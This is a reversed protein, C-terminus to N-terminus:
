KKCSSPAHKVAFAAAQKLKQRLHKQAEAETPFSSLDLDDAFTEVDSNKWRVEAYIDFNPKFVSKRGPYLSYSFGFHMSAWPANPATRFNAWAYFIL